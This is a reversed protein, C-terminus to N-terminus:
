MIDCRGSLIWVALHVSSSFRRAIALFLGETFRGLRERHAYRNGLPYLRILRASDLVEDEDFWASAHSRMVDLCPRRYASDLELGSRTESKTRECGDRPFVAGCHVPPRVPHRRRGRPEVRMSLGFPDVADKEARKRTMKRSGMERCAAVATVGITRLM